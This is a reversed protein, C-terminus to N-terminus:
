NTRLQESASAKILMSILKAEDAVLQAQSGVPLSLEWSCIFTDIQSHLYVDIRISLM